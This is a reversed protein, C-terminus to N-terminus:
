WTTCRTLNTGASASVCSISAPSAPLTPGGLISITYTAAGPIQILVTTANDTPTLTAGQVSAAAIIDSMTYPTVTGKINYQAFLISNAGRLASMIGKATADGADEKIELYKPIAVAALIGIIIIVIILEILTFGKNNRITNRLPKLANGGTTRKGM